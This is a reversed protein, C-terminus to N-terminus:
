PKEGTPAATPHQPEALEALFAIRRANPPANFVFEADAFRPALNWHSFDARFQPHGEQNRYTLVARLPLPNPGAAIWFQYDVTDTRGSVHHAPQGDIRTAEVYDVEGTRAEIEKAFDSRLMLALPLRMHLGRLFFKVAADVGGPKAVQAYVQQGPNWVTLDKGDYLVTHRDGDSQESEVRLRDPRSLAISRTEGFELMQGSDQLVDYRSQVDVTFGPTASLLAAMDRLLGAAPVPKPLATPSAAAAAAPPAVPAKATRPGACGPLLTLSALCLLSGTLRAKRNGSM